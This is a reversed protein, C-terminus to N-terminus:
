FHFYEVTDPPMHIRKGRYERYRREMRSFLEMNIDFYTEVDFNISNPAKVITGDHLVMDILKLSPLDISGIARNGIIKRNQLNEASLVADCLTSKYNGLRELAGEFLFDFRDDFDEVDMGKYKVWMEVIAAHPDDGVLALYIDKEEKSLWEKWEYMFLVTKFFILARQSDRRLEMSLFHGLSRNSFTEEIRNAIIGIRFFTADLSFRALTSIMSMLSKLDIEPFHIRTLSLLVSYEIRSVDNLLDDFSERTERNIIAADVPDDITKAYELISLFENATAHAELLSLTSLPVQHHVTDGSCYNIILVVGFKEEYQLQHTLRKCATPPLTGEVILEKHIDIEGTEVAFVALRDDVDPLDRTLSQAFNLKRVLYQHGWFTTHLDLFHTIEHYVLARIKLMRRDMPEGSKWNIAAHIEASDAETYQLLTLINSFYDFTGDLDPASLFRAHM